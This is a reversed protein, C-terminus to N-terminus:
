ALGNSGRVVYRSGLRLETIHNQQKKTQSPFDATLGLRAHTNLAPATSRSEDTVPEPAVTASRRPRPPSAPAVQQPLQPPTSRFASPEETVQAAVPRFVSQLQELEQQQKDIQLKQFQIFQQTDQLQQQLLMTESPQARQAMLTSTLLSIQQRQAELMERLAALESVDSVPLQTDAAAAESTGQTTGQTASPEAVEDEFFISADTSEALPNTTVTVPPPAPAAAVVKKPRGM